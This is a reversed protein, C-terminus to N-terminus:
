LSLVHITISSDMQREHLVSDKTNKLDGSSAWTNMVWDSSPSHSAPTLGWAFVVKQCGLLWWCWSTQSGLPCFTLIVATVQFSQWWRVCKLKVSIRWRMLQCGFFTLAKDRQAKSMYLKNKWKRWLSHHSRNILLFKIKLNLKVHSIVNFFYILNQLKVPWVPFIFFISKPSDFFKLFFNLFCFLVFCFLFFFSKQEWQRKGESFSFPFVLLFFHCWKWKNSLNSWMNNEWAFNFWWLLYLLFRVPM